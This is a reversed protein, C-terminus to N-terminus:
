QFWRAYVWSIIKALHNWNWTRWFTLTFDNWPQHHDSKVKVKQLFSFWKWKSFINKVTSVSNIVYHVCIASYYRQSHTVITDVTVVTVVTNDGINAYQMCMASYYIKTIIYTHHVFYVRTCTHWLLNIAFYITNNPQKKKITTQNNKKKVQNSPQKSSWALM